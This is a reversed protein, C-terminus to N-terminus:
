NVTFQHIPFAFVPISEPSLLLVQLDAHVSDSQSEIRFVEFAMMLADDVSRLVGSECVTDTWLLEFADTGNVVSQLFRNTSPRYIIFM